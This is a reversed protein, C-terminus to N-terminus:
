RLRFPQPHQPYLAYHARRRLGHRRRQIRCRDLHAAGEHLFLLQLVPLPIRDPRLRKFGYLLHQRRHRHRRLRRSAPRLDDLTPHHRHTRHLHQRPTGTGALCTTNCEYIGTGSGSGNGATVFFLDGAADFAMASVNISGLNAPLLCETNTTTSACLPTTASPTTFAAYGGNVTGGIYPLKVISNVPGYDNGLYINNSADVAAAASNGWTGIMTIAGTTTNVLQIIQNNAVAMMGLSNVGISGGAPNGGSLFYGGVNAVYNVQNVIVDASAPVAVTPIAVVPFSDTVVTAASYTASGNQSATLTCTGAILMTAQVASSNVTCVTPTTSAFTVPLGASSTAVLAITAGITQQGPNAFTIAQAQPAVVTTAIPTTAAVAGSTGTITVTVPGALAATSSATLTLIQTGAVTGASFAGTVGAPLGSVAMTVAGTFGGQDTVSVVDTTTLGQALAVTSQAAAITFGATTNNFYKPLTVNGAPKNQPSYGEDTAGPPTVTWDWWFVGKMWASQQSFVEFFAEYCNQQETTDYTGTINAYPTENTGSVSVYGIESFILPKNYTSQLNKLAAVINFNSKNNTWASVLAALSPDATNTLPFYGDVGIIDVDAWFSVSTFEDGAGTANAGYILTLGPYQTRIAKIITEWNSKYTATTLSKLETGIVLYGVNNQSALQAYHLIFTQYSAFWATPNTPAFSGRFVGDLSDVQPKLSVTLGQAQAAKIASVVSADTPSLSYNNTYGPSSTTEPAIVNSTSTQQYQTEMVATFNAGTARISAAYATSTSYENAQYSTLNLGNYTFGSAAQAHAAPTSAAFALAALAAASRLLSSSLARLSIM